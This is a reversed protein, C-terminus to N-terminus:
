EVYSNAMINKAKETWKCHQDLASVEYPWLTTHNQNRYLNIPTTYNILPTLNKSDYKHCSIIQSDIKSQKESDYYSYIRMM